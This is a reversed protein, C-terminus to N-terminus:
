SSTEFKLLSTTVKFLLFFFDSKQPIHPDNLNLYVTSNEFIGNIVVDISKM